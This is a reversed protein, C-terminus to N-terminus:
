RAPFGFRRGRAMVRPAESGGRPAFAAIPHRSGESPETWLTLVALIQHVPLPASMVIWRVPDRPCRTRRGRPRSPTKQGLESELQPAIAPRRHNTSRTTPSSATRHGREMPSGTSEVRLSSGSWATWGVVTSWGDGRLESDSSAFFRRERGRPRRVRHGRSGHTPYDHRSKATWWIKATSVRHVSGLSPERCGIACNAGRPPDSAGRTIPKSTSAEAEGRASSTHTASTPIPHELVM